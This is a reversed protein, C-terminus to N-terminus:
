GLNKNRAATHGLIVIFVEAQKLYLVNGDYVWIFFKDYFFHWLITAPLNKFFLGLNFFAILYNTDEIVECVFEVYIFFPETVDFSINEKKM